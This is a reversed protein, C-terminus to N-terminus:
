DGVNYQNKQHSYYERVKQRLKKGLFPLRFLANGTWFMIPFSKKIVRRMSENEAYKGSFFALMNKFISFYTHNIKPDINKGVAKVYIMTERLGMIDSMTNNGTIFIQTAVHENDFFIKKNVLNQVWFLWDENTSIIENFSVIDSNKFVVASIAFFNEIILDNISRDKYDHIIGLSEGKKIRESLGAYAFLSRDANLQNVAREIHYTTLSDDADLFAIFDGESEILGLNRARSRGPKSRLLKINSKEMCEILREVVCFTNDTSGNVVVIIEINQYSQKIVSNIARIITSEDNHAPIIVSVKKKEVKLEM